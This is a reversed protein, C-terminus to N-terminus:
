AGALLIFLECFQYRGSEGCFGPWASACGPVIALEMRILRYRLLCHETDRGTIFPQALAGFIV